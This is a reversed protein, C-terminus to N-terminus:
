RRRTLFRRRRSRQLQEEDGVRDREDRRRLHDDLKRPRSRRERQVEGDAVAAQERLLRDLRRDHDPRQGGDPLPRQRAQVLGGQVQHRRRRLDRDHEDDPLHEPLVRRRQGRHGHDVVDVHVERTRSPRPSRTSGPPSALWATDTLHDRGDGVHLDPDPREVRAHLHDGRRHLHGHRLRGHRDDPRRRRRHRRGHAPQDDGNGLVPLDPEALGSAASYNVCEDKASVM